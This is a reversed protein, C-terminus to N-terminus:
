NDDGKMNLLQGLQNKYITNLLANRKADFKQLEKTAAAREAETAASQFKAYAGAEGFNLRNIYDGLFADQPKVPARAFLPLVRQANRYSIFEPIGDNNSDVAVQDRAEAAAPATAPAATTQASPASSEKGAGGGARDMRSVAYMGGQIDGFSRGSPTLADLITKPAVDEPMPMTRRPNSQPAAPTNELARAMLEEMAKDVM